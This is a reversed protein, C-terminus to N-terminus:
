IAVGQQRWWLKIRLLQERYSALLVGKAFTCKCHTDCHNCRSCVPRDMCRCSTNPTRNTARCCECSRVM